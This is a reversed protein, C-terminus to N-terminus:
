AAQEADEADEDALASIWREHRVRPRYASV